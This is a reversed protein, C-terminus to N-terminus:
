NKTSVKNIKKRIPPFVWFGLVMGTLCAAIGTMAPISCNLFENLTVDSRSLYYLRLVLYTILFSIGALQIIYHQRLLNVICCSTLAILFIALIYPM